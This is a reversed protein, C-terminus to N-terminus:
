NAYVLKPWGGNTSAVWHWKELFQPTKRSIVGNMNETKTNIETKGNDDNTVIFCGELNESENGVVKLEKSMGKHSFTNISWCGYVHLSYMYGVVGGVTPTYGSENTITIIGTNSCAICYSNDYWSYGIVGGVYGKTGTVEINANNVCGILNINGSGAHGVIGGIGHYEQSTGEVTGDVVCNIITTTFEKVAGLIAGVKSKGKVNANELKLNFVNGGYMAGFLGVAEKNSDITLNRITKNNGRFTGGYAYNLDGIPIWQYNAPLTINKKLNINKALRKERLHFLGNELQNYKDVFVCGNKLQNNNISYTMWQNLLMLGKASYVDFECNDNYVLDIDNKSNDLETETVDLAWGPKGEPTTFTVEASNPSINLTMPYQTNSAFKYNNSAAGGVKFPLDLTHTKSEDFGESGVEGSENTCMVAKFGVFDIGGPSVIAQLYDQGGITVETFPIYQYDCYGDSDPYSDYFVAWLSALSTVNIRKGNVIYDGATVRFADATKPLRLLARDTHKLVITAAGLTPSNLDTDVTISGYGNYIQESSLTSAALADGVMLSYHYEKVDEKKDYVPIDGQVIGMTQAVQQYKNRESEYKGGAAVCSIAAKIYVGEWYEDDNTPDPKIQNAISWTGSEYVAYKTIPDRNTGTFGVDLTLEDGDTFGTISRNYHYNHTVSGEYAMRSRGVEQGDIIVSAIRLSGAQGNTPQVLDEESCGAFALVMAVAMCSKTMRFPTFFRYADVAYTKLNKAKSLIVSNLTNIKKMIKM